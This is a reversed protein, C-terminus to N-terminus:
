GVADINQQMEALVTAYKIGDKTNEKESKKYYFAQSVGYATWPCAIITALWSLESYYGEKICKFALILCTITIIWILVSEQVLLTKSFERRKRKRTTM